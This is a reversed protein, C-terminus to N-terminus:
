RRLLNKIAAYYGQFEEPEKTWLFDPRNWSVWSGGIINNTADLELYYKYEVIKKQFQPTGVVPLWSPDDLEDTYSVSSVVLVSRVTGPASGRFAGGESIVRSDYAYIPNNWVERLRAYDGIFAQKMLGIQNALVIHFSGANVDSCAPLFSFGVHCRAGLQRALSNAVNAYYHSIMGKVDSAGFPIQIGDSNTVTVPAPEPYLIAAPSWGHCIGNWGPARPSTMGWVKRVTPYSYDGMYIDYKEAPSLEALQEQSMLLVEERSALHYGFGRKSESNWRNNIGGQNHPWYTDSWPIKDADLSANLPLVAYNRVYSANIMDPKNIDNWGDKLHRGSTQVPTFIGEPIAESHATNIQFFLVITVSILIKQM